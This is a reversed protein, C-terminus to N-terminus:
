HSLVLRSVVDNIKLWYVGDQNTSLDVYVSAGKEILNGFVDFVEFDSYQNWYYIGQSPNPYVDVVEDETVDNVVCSTGCWDRSALECLINEYALKNSGAGDWTRVGLTRLYETFRQDSVGYYEAFSVVASSDWDTTKFVTIYPIQISFQDWAKFVATYFDAQKQESSNCIESSPYGCEAFYIKKNPYLDVIEEFDHQVVSTDQVTFDSNLPYYTLTVVDMSDNIVKTFEYDVLGSHTFTTGVNLEKQYLEFYKDKTYPLIEYLFDRFANQEAEPKQALFIDSENGINLAVLTINPFHNLVTDLFIKFRNILIPDDFDVGVLDTPVEKATTNIPALQLEMKLGVSAYYSDAIDLLATSFEGPSTEIDTWRQFFHVSEMCAAQAIELEAQFGGSETEDIQFALIRDGKDAQTYSIGFVSILFLVLLSRM